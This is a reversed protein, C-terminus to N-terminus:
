SWRESVALPGFKACLKPNALVSKSYFLIIVKQPM